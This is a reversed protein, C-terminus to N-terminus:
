LSDPPFTGVSEDTPKTDVGAKLAAAVRKKEQKHERRDRLTQERARKAQTLQRKSKAMQRAKVADRIGAGEDGSL